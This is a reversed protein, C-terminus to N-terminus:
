KTERHLTHKNCYPCYKKLELRGTTNRRNKTTTYRSVGAARKNPNTRCETCELTIILRAGKSKAM